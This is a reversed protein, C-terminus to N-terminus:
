KKPICGPLSILKSRDSVKPFTKLTESLEKLVIAGPRYGEKDSHIVVEHDEIKGDNRVPTIKTTTGTFICDSGQKSITFRETVIVDDEGTKHEYEVEIATNNAGIIVHISFSNPSMRVYSTRNHSGEFWTATPDESVMFPEPKIKQKTQQADALGPLGVFLLLM